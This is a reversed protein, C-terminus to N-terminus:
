GGLRSDLFREVLAGGLWSGLGILLYMFFKLLNAADIPWERTRDILQHYAILDALRPSSLNEDSQYAPSTSSSSSFSKRSGRAWRM